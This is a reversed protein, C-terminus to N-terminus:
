TCYLVIERDRPIEAHRVALEQTSVRLAGPITVPGAEFDSAHRLDLVLVPEGGDMRAKLEEPTIRAVRLARLFRRREMWKYAAWALLLVLVVRLASGGADELLRGVVQLQRAFLRGVALYTGAWLLAGIADCGLFRVRRMRVIGALPTAITSLGPVFKAVLLTRAGHLAFVDQARRVCSDPELSLRCLLGLVRAGKRRGVEYWASDALLSALAALGLAAAFSMRGMGALSGAALLLPAAPLPLGLQELLVAGFLVAYRHQVLFASDASV